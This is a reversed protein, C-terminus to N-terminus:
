CGCRWTDVAEAGRLLDPAVHVRFSPAVYVLAAGGLSSAGRTWLPCRWTYKRTSRPLLQAM